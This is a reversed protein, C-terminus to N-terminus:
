IGMVLCCKGNVLWVFTPQSFFMQIALVKNVRIRSVHVIHLDGVLTLLHCIPNLEANLPNFLLEEWHKEALIKNFKMLIFNPPLWEKLIEKVWNLISLIEMDFIELVNLDVASGSIWQSKGGLQCRTQELMVSLCLIFVFM